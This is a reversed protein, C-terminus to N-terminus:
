MHTYLIRGDPARVTHSVEHPTSQGFQMDGYMSGRGSSPSPGGGSSGTSRQVSHSYV